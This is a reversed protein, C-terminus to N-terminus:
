IRWNLLSFYWAYPNYSSRSGGGGYGGWGGYGGTPWWSQDGGGGDDGALTPEQIQENLWNKPIDRWNPWSGGWKAPKWWPMKQPEGTVGSLGAGSQEWINGGAVGQRQNYRNLEEDKTHRFWLDSYHKPLEGREARAGAQAALNRKSGEERAAEWKIRQGEEELRMKELADLSAINDSSPYSIRGGGSVNSTSGGRSWDPNMGRSLLWAAVGNEPLRYSPVRIKRKVPKGRPNYPRPM